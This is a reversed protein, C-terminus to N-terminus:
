TRSQKSHIRWPHVKAHDLGNAALFGRQAKSRTDIFLGYRKVLMEAHKVLACDDGAKLEIELESILITKEHGYRSYSKVFGTDLAYELLAGRVKVLAPRRWIDTQYRVSLNSAALKAKELVKILVQHAPHGDHLDINWKPIASGVNTLFVNHELRELSNNKSAKLTQVWRRGEKRLRLAVGAEALHFDDTDLYFAQLHQRRIGGKSIVLKELASFKEDPLSLKLEFENM